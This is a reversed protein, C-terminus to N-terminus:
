VLQLIEQGLRDMQSHGQSEPLIPPTPLSLLQDHHMSCVFRMPLMCELTINSKELPEQLRKLLVPKLSWTKLVHLEGRCKFATTEVHSMSDLGLYYVQLFRTSWEFTLAKAEMSLTSDCETAISSINGTVVLKKANHCTTVPEPCAEATEGDQHPPPVEASWIKIFTSFIPFLCDYFM